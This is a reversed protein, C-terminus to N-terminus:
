IASYYYSFGLIAIAGDIYGACYTDERKENMLLVLLIQMFVAIYFLVNSWLREDLYFMIAGFVVLLFLSVIRSAEAGIIQPITKQSPKDYKLDRIDFPITVALIYLYHAICLWFLQSYEGENIMPFALLVGVWTLAILHIKIYPIERLNRGKIKKVYLISILSSIALILLGFYSENDQNCLQFYLVSAIVASAGSLVWLVKQNKLVWELWPTKDQFGTKFFRQANYVTLTSFFAALGYYLWNEVGFDPLYAKCFGASM